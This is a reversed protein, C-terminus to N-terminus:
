QRRKNDEKPIEVYCYDHDNCVNEHKKLKKETSYSHFCNLCYFDEDHKSTVERLLASLKKLAITGITFYHWKKDDTIMLLVVQNKCRSNYKSKYALRIKETNYLVLLVNFAISKNNLEFNKWDIEKWNYQDIFTTIKSTRPPVKKINQYNLAITLAYQFCKDDNNKPNM